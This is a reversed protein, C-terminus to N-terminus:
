ITIEMGDYGVLIGHPTFIEELMAHTAGGNHSHHTTSIVTGEHVTGQARLRDVVQFFQPVGLHGDYDSHVVGATCELVLLDLRYGKLFEWTEESWVGTDTAYLLTKGEKQIILNHADEEHKHHAHVPTITYACCPYSTFSKTENLEIPWQPYRERLVECIRANGFIAFSLSERESFPYLGYQVEAPSFHDDDSHTFWLMTWLRADIRDRHMQMLTDPPLDIKLCNDILAGSRTRIEKGGHERAYNSVFTDSLFAPIGEAAATGLLRITM